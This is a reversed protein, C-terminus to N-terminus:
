HMVQGFQCYKCIVFEPCNFRFLIKSTVLSFAYASLFNFTALTVIERKSLTSFVTPLPSFAPKGDNEGKKVTNELAKKKLTMLIQSTHYFTLFCDHNKSVRLFFGNSFM